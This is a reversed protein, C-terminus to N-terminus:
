KKRNKRRALKQAKRKAKRKAKPIQKRTFYAQSIGLEARMQAVQQKSLSKAKGAAILADLAEKKSFTKQSENTPQEILDPEQTIPEDSTQM